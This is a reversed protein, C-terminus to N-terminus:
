VWAVARRLIGGGRRCCRVEGGVGAGRVRCLLWQVSSLKTRDYLDRKILMLFVPNSSQATPTLHTRQPTSAALAATAAAAAAAAAVM